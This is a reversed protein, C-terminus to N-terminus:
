NRHEGHCSSCATNVKELLRKIDRDTKMTRIAEATELASTRMDNSWGKWAEKAKTNKALADHSATLEAFLATKIMTALLKDKEMQSYGKRRAALDLMEKELGQGGKKTPAFVHMVDNVDEFHEKLDVRKPDTKDDPKIDAPKQLAAIGAKIDAVNKKNAAIALKIAADRIAALQKADKPDHANQAAAAILIAGDRIKRQSSEDKGEEGKLLGATEDILKRADAETLFPKVTDDALGPGSAIWFGCILVLGGSVRGNASRSM